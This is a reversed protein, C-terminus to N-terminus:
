RLGFFAKSNDYVVYTISVAPVVKLLNPTIGKFLGRFGEGRVTRVTVDWMGTYTPPHIATGQSQLRTRLLNLPYVVSAGIAGSCAGVGATTFNSLTTDDEDTGHLRAKRNTLFQKLYEFTTLDIASYPFMGILGMPLGRYFSRIGSSTWMKRATNLILANGRLGGKVTENQMRFKLTDLPYICFQSIMGGMGAAFFQSWPRLARPDDHGELRALARKSGEYSGFKIASEPMVKLVNLGNGAFLSRLGGMRWLAKTAEVLPRTATKAAKLPAGSKAHHIADDKVGVQAILYVKLRDLPATATRSVVGSIGGAVFYGAPPLLDTLRADKEHRYGAFLDPEVIDEYQPYQDGPDWPFTLPKSEDIVQPADTRQIATSAFAPPSPQPLKFIKPLAGFLTRSFQHKGLGEVTESVHVDGESNVTVTSSYYSLVARLNPTDTPIFLLFKRWEDFTIVGDHNSDVESFFQDLKASPLLIGAREIAARLEQKDLQGNHDLDISKFLQWLEKETQEVFNRFEQFEIHGDENTDVTKLVDQLLSDANKLPHDIKTLGRKLGDLNLQGENRTDLTKWLKEVRANQDEGDM